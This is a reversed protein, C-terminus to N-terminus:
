FPESCTGQQQPCSALGGVETRWAHYAAFVRVALESRCEIGLKAHLRAMHTQITRPSVGLATAIQKDGYGKVVGRCVEIQRSSLRLKDAVKKWAQDCFEGREVSCSVM